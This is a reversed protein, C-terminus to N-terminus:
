FSGVQNAVFFLCAYQELFCMSHRFHELLRSRNDPIMLADNLNGIKLSNSFGVRSKLETLLLHLTTILSRLTDKSSGVNTSAIHRVSVCAESCFSEIESKMENSLEANSLTSLYLIAVSDCTVPLINAVIHSDGYNSKVIGVLWKVVTFHQGRLCRNMINDDLQLRNLIAIIKEQINYEAIGLLTILGLFDFSNQLSIITVNQVQKILDTKEQSNVTYFRRKLHDISETRVLVLFSVAHFLHLFYKM